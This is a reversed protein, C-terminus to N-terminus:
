VYYVCCKGIQSFGLGRGNVPVEARLEACFLQASGRGACRSRCITNMFFSVVYYKPCCLIQCSAGINWACLLMRHAERAKTIGM